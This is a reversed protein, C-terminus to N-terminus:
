EDQAGELRAKLEVRLIGKKTTPYALQTFTRETWFGARQKKGSFNFQM